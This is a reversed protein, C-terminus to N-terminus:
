IGGWGPLCAGPVYRCTTSMQQTSNSQRSHNLILKQHAQNQLPHQENM